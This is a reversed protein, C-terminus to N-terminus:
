SPEIHARLGQLTDDGSVAKDKGGYIIGLSALGVMAMGEVMELFTEKWKNTSVGCRIESTATFIKETNPTQFM